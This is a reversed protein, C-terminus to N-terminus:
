WFDSLRIQGPRFGKSISAVRDPILAAFEENLECIVADRNHLIAVGATTGSGGFPDLVVSRQIPHKEDASNPKYIKMTKVRDKTKNEIIRKKVDSASQAKASEYNKTNDGHYEGKTTVGRTTKAVQQPTMEAPIIVDEKEFSGFCECSPQWNVTSYASPVYSPVSGTKTDRQGGRKPNKLGESKQTLSDDQKNKQKTMNREFPAGCEGCCGHASTGALICPEILEPPFVAFHAGKFPKTTITWVSRKNRGGGASVWEDGGIGGSVAQHDADGQRSRFSNGSRGGGDKEKIAEHDYFYHKNKTLLFLYEHSKTPRDTVSEPMPNPKNWIVDSRLYWGDARLAFALMWPIGILDKAKIGEPIRKGRTAGYSNTTRGMNKTEATHGSAGGGGAYSDGINVWLTGTPKLKEGVLRFVEVLNEIFQEPTDELGIQEDIRKAGCNLCANSKGGRHAVEPRLVNKGRKPDNWKTDMSITHECNPDGGEWEATGYDRLGYYPPSTVCTDVSGDELEHLTDLCNGLLLRYSM